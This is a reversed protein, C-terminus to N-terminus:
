LGKFLGLGMAEAPEMSLLEKLEMLDEGDLVLDVMETGRESRAARVFVIRVTGDPQLLPRGGITWADPRPTASM